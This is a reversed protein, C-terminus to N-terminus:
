PVNTRDGSGNTGWRPHGQIALSIRSNKNTIFPVYGVRAVSSWSSKEIQIGGSQGIYLPSHPYFLAMFAGDGLFFDGNKYTAYFYLGNGTV